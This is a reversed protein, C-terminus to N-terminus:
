LSLAVVFIGLIRKVYGRNQSLRHIYAFRPVSLKQEFRGAVCLLSLSLELRGLFTEPVDQVQWNL